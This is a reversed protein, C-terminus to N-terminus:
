GVARGDAIEQLLPSEVRPIEGGLYIALHNGAGLVPLVHQLGTIHHFNHGEDAAPLRQPALPETQGAAHEALGERALTAFRFATEEITRDFDDDGTLEALIRQALVEQEDESLKAAEDFARQLLATM